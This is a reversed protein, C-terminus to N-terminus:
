FAPVYWISSRESLIKGSKNRMSKVYYYYTTGKRVKTDVHKRKKTTKICKYKGDVSTSRYIKYKGAGKAKPFTITIRGGSRSVLKLSSPPNLIRVKFDILVTPVGWSGWGDVERGDSYCPVNAFMMTYNGTTYYAPSLPQKGRYSTWGTPNALDGIVYSILEGSSDFTYFDSRTYYNDWTSRVKNKTKIKEGVYYVHNPVPKYVRLYDNDDKVVCAMLDDSLNERFVAKPQTWDFVAAQDAPEATEAAAPQEIDAMTGYQVSGDTGAFAVTSTMTLAMILAM